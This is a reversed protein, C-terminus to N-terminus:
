CFGLSISWDGFSADVIQLVVSKYILYLLSCGACCEVVSSCALYALFADMMLIKSPFISMDEDSKIGGGWCQAGGDWYVEKVIFEVVSLCKCLSHAVKMLVYQFTQFFVSFRQFCLSYRDYRAMVADWLAWPTCSCYISRISPTQGHNSHGLSPFVSAFCGFSCFPCQLSLPLPPISDM